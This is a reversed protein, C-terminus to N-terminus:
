APKPPPIRSECPEPLVWVGIWVQRDSNSPSTRRLCDKCEQRHTGACRAIDNLLNIEIGKRAIRIIDDRTM